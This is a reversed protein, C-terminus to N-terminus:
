KWPDREQGVRLLFLKLAGGREVREGNGESGEETGDLKQAVKRAPRVVGGPAWRRRHAQSHRQCREGLSEGDREELDRWERRTRGPCTGCQPQQAASM